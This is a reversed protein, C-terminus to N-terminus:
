PGYKEIVRKIESSIISIAEDLNNASVARGEIKPIESERLTGTWERSLICLGIPRIFGIKYALSFPPILSKM